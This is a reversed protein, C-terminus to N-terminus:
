RAGEEDNGALRAAATELAEAARAAAGGSGQVMDGRGGGRGDVIALAATLAPGLDVQVGEGRTFVLHVRGDPTTGALLSVVGPCAKLKQALGRVLGAEPVEGMWTVIRLAGRAEARGALECARRGLETETLERVQRRLTKAEDELKLLSAELDRDLTSFREATRKVLDHKWAYDALARGGCLFEVRVGGKNREARLVKILGIQGTAAVHTGGCASFDYDRIEVIRLPGDTKPPKRLPFGNVNEHDTWHVLIPRNEQVVRNARLEAALLFADDFDPVDLDITVRDTGLHFSVTEASGTEIFARSLLHQGTHQQMHDFRRGADIEGVVTGSLPADVRHEIRGDVDQVDLVAAGGLRGTDAPQGGSEAYFATQDLVVVFGGGDAPRCTEVAADFRTLFPDEHFLRKTGPIM